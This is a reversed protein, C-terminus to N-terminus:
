ESANQWLTLAAPLTKELSRRLSEPEELWLLLCVRLLCNFMKITQKLLCAMLPLTLPLSLLILFPPPSLATEFTLKVLKRRFSFSFLKVVQAKVLFWSWLSQLTIVATELLPEPARWIVPLVHALLSPIALLLLDSHM